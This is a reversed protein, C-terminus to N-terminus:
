RVVLSFQKPLNTSSNIFQFRDFFVIDGTAAKAIAEDLSNLEGDVPPNTKATTVWAEKTGLVSIVCEYSSPQYTKNNKDAVQIVGRHVSALEAKSITDGSNFAKNNIRLIYNKDATTSQASLHSVGIVIVTFLILNKM